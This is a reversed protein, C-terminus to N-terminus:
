KKTLERKAELWDEFHMGHEGGRELYRHYARVRIDEDTPEWEVSTSTVEVITTTVAKDSAKDSAAKPAKARTRPKPAAPAAPAETRPATKARSTTTKKAM